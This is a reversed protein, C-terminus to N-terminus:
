GFEVATCSWREGVLDLRFAFARSRDGQRVHVSVEAADPSPCFV